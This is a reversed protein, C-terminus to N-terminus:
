LDSLNDVMANLTRGLRAIEDGGPMDLRGSLDGDGVREVFGMVTELPRVVAPPRLGLPTALPRTVLLPVVRPHALA